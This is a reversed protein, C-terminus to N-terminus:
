TTKLMSSSIVESSRPLYSTNLTKNYWADVLHLTSIKILLLNSRYYLEVINSLDHIVHESNHSQFPSLVQDRM